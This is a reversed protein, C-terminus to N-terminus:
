HWAITALCIFYGLVVALSAWLFFRLCTDACRLYREYDGESTYERSCVLMCVAYLSLIALEAVFVWLTCDLLDWRGGPRPPATARLYLTVAIALVNAVLATGLLVRLNPRM